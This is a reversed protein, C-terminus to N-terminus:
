MLVPSYTTSGDTMPSMSGPRRVGNVSSISRTRSPPPRTPTYGTLSCLQISM